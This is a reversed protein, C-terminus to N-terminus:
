SRRVRRCILLAALGALLAAFSSPEPVNLFESPSLTENSIRVADLYGLFAKNAAADYVAVDKTASPAALNALDLANGVEVGDLYFRIDHLGADEDVSVAFHHWENEAVKGAAVASLVQVTTSSNDDYYDIGLVASELDSNYGLGVSMRVYKYNDGRKQAAFRREVSGPSLSSLDEQLNFFGEMTIESTADGVDHFDSYYGTSVRQNIHPNSFVFNGTVGQPDIATPVAPVGGVGLQEYTPGDYRVNGDNEGSSAGPGPNVSNDIIWKNGTPADDYDLPKQGDTVAVEDDTEFQYYVITDALTPVIQWSLVMTVALGAIVLAKSYKKKKKQFRFSM